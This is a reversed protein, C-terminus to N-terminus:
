DEEAPVMDWEVDDWEVGDRFIDDVAIDAVLEAADKNTFDDEVEVMTLKTYTIRLWKM